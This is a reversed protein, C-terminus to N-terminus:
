LKCCILSPLSTSNLNMHPVMVQHLSPGILDLFYTTTTNWSSVCELMNKYHSVIVEEYFVEAEASRQLTPPIKITQCCCVAAQNSPGSIYLSPSCAHMIFVEGDTSSCVFCPYSKSLFPGSPWLEQNMSWLQLTIILLKYGRTIRWYPHVFCLATYRYALLNGNQHCGSLVWPLDATRLKTLLVLKAEM